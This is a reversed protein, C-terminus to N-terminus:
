LPLVWYSGGRGLKANTISKALTRMLLTKTVNKCVRTYWQLKNM